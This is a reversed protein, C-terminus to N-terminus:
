FEVEEVQSGQGRLHERHGFASVENQQAGEALTLMKPLSWVWEDGFGIKHAVVGLADKARRVTAWSHGNGEAASKVQKQGVPGNALLDRLFDKAREIPRREDAAQEADALADRATGEIPEGWVVRTALIDPHKELGAQELRYVFGGEDSGINSKARMLIRREPAGALGPQRAAIMVIRAVAAFAVSGLLREQPERGATGKALHHVGLAAAGTTRCLDALPQLDRRTEANKHSDKTAILAIPDIVVLVVDGMRRVAEKLAGMDRSPDFTRSRGDERAGQVLHIRRLDAGASILRPVLTDAPDDEGSWIVVSGRKAHVGDPWSTASSIVAAFELALTTKGSGPQGGLIHPRGRALWGPWLWEIAHPVISAASQLEVTAIAHAAVSPDAATRRKRTVQVLHAFQNEDDEDLYDLKDM